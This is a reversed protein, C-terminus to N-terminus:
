RKSLIQEILKTRSVKGSATRPIENVSVINKPVMYNPADGMAVVLDELTLYCEGEVALVIIKDKIGHPDSLGVVSFNQRSFLHHLRSEIEDPHIIYGNTNIVDDVRGSFILYGDEDLKGRDSTIFWGDRYTSHWASQDLYGLAVNKGRVAITGESGSQLIEGRDGLIAIDVGEAPRGETHRKTVETQLEIFTVRMAESLGYHLYIRSSPFIECLQNRFSQDFRMAGTQICRLNAGASRIRKTHFKLISALISPVTSFANIGPMELTDLLKGLNGMGPLVLTGNATLVSHARGFGFAHDLPAFVCEKISSDVGMARNMFSATSSIGDHGLIVGKRNSSTTGSTFIVMAEHFTESLTTELKGPPRNSIMLKVNAARMASNVRESGEDRGFPVAVAGIKACGYVAALYDSDSLGRLGVRDGSHVGKAQLYGGFLEIREFLHGYTLSETNTVIALADSRAVALNEYLNTM